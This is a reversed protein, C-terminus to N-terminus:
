MKPMSQLVEKKKRWNRVVKENVGFRKRQRETEM